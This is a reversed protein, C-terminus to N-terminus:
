RREQRVILPRTVVRIQSGLLHVKLVHDVLQKRPQGSPRVVVGIARLRAPRSDFTGEADVLIGARLPDITVNVELKRGRRAAEAPLIISSVHWFTTPAAPLGTRTATPVTVTGISTALVVNLMRRSVSSSSSSTTKRSRDIRGTTPATLVACCDSLKSVTKRVSSCIWFEARVGVPATRLTRAVTRGERPPLGGTISASGTCVGPTRRIADMVTVMGLMVTPLGLRESDGGPQSRWRSTFAAATSRHNAPSLCRWAAESQCETLGPGNRRFTRPDM